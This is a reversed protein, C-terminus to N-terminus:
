AFAYRVILGIGRLRSTLACHFHDHQDSQSTHSKRGHTSEYGRTGGLCPRSEALLFLGQCISQATKAVEGVRVSNASRALQRKLDSLQGGSAVLNEERDVQGTKGSFSVESMVGQLFHGCGQRIWEGVVGLRGVIALGREWVDLQGPQYTILVNLSSEVVRLERRCHGFQLRQIAGELM